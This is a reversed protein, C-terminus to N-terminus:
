LFWLLKKIFRLPKLFLTGIKYDISSKLNIIDNKCGKYEIYLNIPDSFLNTYIIPHNLYIQRYLTYKKKEDLLTTRSAEKIRYYFMIEQIQFVEGGNELLSLWFDWDELGTNMNPNYGTTTDYDSKRFVASCYIM